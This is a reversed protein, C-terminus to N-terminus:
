TSKRPSRSTQKGFYRDMLREISVLPRNYTVTSKRLAVVLPKVQVYFAERQEGEVVTLARQLVYNAYQDKIMTLIPNESDATPTTMVENILVHRIESDSCILAKECVNSAYKHQSLKVLNSRIRSIVIAKDRDRGQDIIFQIVYNGYQDQMLELTHRHIAGMLDRTHEESLNELCRQLVRCGYPHTSLELINDCIMPLFTLRGPDVVEVLKQIVHNGHADKICTLIDQELHRIIASQQAESIYDVARQVVRCGYIHLSLTVVQQEIVEALIDRQARTGFEFFKQIVYNGFVDRILQETKLPVIEEFIKQKEDDEAVELKQQIFRSGHQDGSFEIIHGYIEKLEWNKDRNSRFDELIPSRESPLLYNIRRPQRLGGHPFEQASNPSSHGSQKIGQKAKPPTHSAVHRPSQSPSVAQDKSPLALKRNNLFPASNRPGVNLHMPPMPPSLFIQPAPYFFQQGPAQTPYDFPHNRIVQRGLDPISNTTLPHPHPHPYGNNNITSNPHHMPYHPRGHHLHFGEFRFAYDSFPEPPQIPYYNGCEPPPYANYSAHLQPFHPPHPPGIQFNPPMHRPPYFIRDDEVPMGRFSAHIDESMPPPMPLPEFRSNRPPFPLHPPPYAVPYDPRGPATPPHTVRIDSYLQQHDAMGPRPFWNSAVPMAPPENSVVILPANGFQLINGASPWSPQGSLGTPHLQSPFANTDTTRGNETVHIMAGPNPPGLDPPRFTNVPKPTSPESQPSGSRSGWVQWEDDSIYRGNPPIGLTFGHRISAGLDQIRQENQPNPSHSRSQARSPNSSM